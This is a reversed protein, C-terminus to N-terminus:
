VAQPSVRLPTPFLEKLLDDVICFVTTIFQEVPM